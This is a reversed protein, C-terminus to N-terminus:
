RRNNVATLYEFSALEIREERCGTSGSAEGERRRGTQEGPRRRQPHVRSRQAPRTRRRTEGAGGQDGDERRRRHQGARDAERERGRRHASSRSTSGSRSLQCETQRMRPPRGSASRPKSGLSRCPKKRSQRKPTKKASSTPRKGVLKFEQGADRVEAGGAEADLEAALRLAESREALAAGREAIKPDGLLNGVTVDLAGLSREYVLRAPSENDLRAVM